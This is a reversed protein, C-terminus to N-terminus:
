NLDATKEASQRQTMARQGLVLKWRCTAAGTDIAPRLADARIRGLDRNARGVNARWLRRDQRRQRDRGRLLFDTRRLHNPVVLGILVFEFFNTLLRSKCRARRQEPVCAVHCSM